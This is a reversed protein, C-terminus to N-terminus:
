FGQEGILPVFRCPGIVEGEVEEGRRRLLTLMEESGRVIPVVLRGGEALQELLAPPAAPAAAHVAIADFPAREPVGRSGDGVLLEVNEVGLSRLAGEASRSLEPLREVSVVEGALRSLVCASYGSGTGIELVREDGRLEMAQAIAAVIWPQSITQRGQIPLASDEYARSRLQEPLFAERPVEEMAALVRGDRIRRRRLQREVMEARRRAFDTM